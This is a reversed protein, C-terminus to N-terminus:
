RDGHQLTLAKTSSISLDSATQPWVAEFTLL